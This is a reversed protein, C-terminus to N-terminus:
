AIPKKERPVLRALETVQIELAAVKAKLIKVEPSDESKIRSKQTDINMEM